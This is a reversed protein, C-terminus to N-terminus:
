PRGIEWVGPRSQCAVGQRTSREGRVKTLLTFQRCTGSVTKSGAGPILTLQAGTAPNVWVVSRGATGIELAHGMCARDRDDISEGIRSGILAGIAAGAVIAVTRGDGVGITSGILAGTAGGLVAGIAERNCRGTTIDYDREWRRGTYGVYEPDNKQRWGHAPAHAPPDAFAPGAWVALSSLMLLTAKATFRM